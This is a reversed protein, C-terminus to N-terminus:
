NDTLSIEDKEQAITEIVVFIDTKAKNQTFERLKIFSNM